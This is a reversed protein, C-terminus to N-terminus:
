DHRLGGLVLNVSCRAVLVQRVLTILLRKFVLTRKLKMKRKTISASWKFVSEGRPKWLILKRKIKRLDLEQEAEQKHTERWCLEAAPIAIHAFCVM